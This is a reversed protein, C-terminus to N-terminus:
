VDFYTLPAEFREKLLARLATIEGESLDTKAIIYGIRNTVLLVFTRRSEYVGQFVHYPHTCHELAVVITVGEDDFTYQVSDVQKTMLRASFFGLYQYYYVARFAFFGGALLGLFAVAPNEGIFLLLAGAAIGLIGFISYFVRQALVKKRRVALGVVHHFDTMLAKNKRYDTTITM